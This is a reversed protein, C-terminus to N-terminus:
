THLHNYGWESHEQLNNSPRAQRILYKWSTFDITHGMAFSSAEQICKYPSGTFLKGVCIGSLYVGLLSTQEWFCSGNYKPSVVELFQETKHWNSRASSQFPDAVSFASQLSILAAKWSCALVLRSSLRPESLSFVPLVAGETARM